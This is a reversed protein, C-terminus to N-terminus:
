NAKSLTLSNSIGPLINRQQNPINQLLLNLGEDNLGHLFGDLETTTLLGTDVDNKIIIVSGKVEWRPVLENTM